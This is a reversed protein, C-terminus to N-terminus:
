RTFGLFAKLGKDMELDARYLGFNEGPVLKEYKTLFEAFSGKFYDRPIYFDKSGGTMRDGAQVFAFYDGSQMRKFEYRELYWGKGAERRGAFAVQYVKEVKNSHMVDYDNDSVIQRIFAESTNVPLYPSPPNVDWVERVIDNEHFSVYRIYHYHGNEREIAYRLQKSFQSKDAWPYRNKLIDLAKKLYIEIDYGYTFTAAM